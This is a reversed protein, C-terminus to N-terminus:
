FWFIDSCQGNSAMCLVPYGPYYALSGPCLVPYGPHYALSGPRFVPYGPCLDLCVLFCARHNKELAVAEFALDMPWRLVSVLVFGTM